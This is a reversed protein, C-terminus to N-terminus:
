KEGVFSAWRELWVRHQETRHTRLDESLVVLQPLLRIVEPGSGLQLVPLLPQGREVVEQILQFARVHLSHQGHKSSGLRFKQLNEATEKQKIFHIPIEHWPSNWTMSYSPVSFFHWQVKMFFIYSQIINSKRLQHYHPFLRQILSIQQGIYRYTQTNNSPMAPSTTIYTIFGRDKSWNIGLTFEWWKQWMRNILLSDNSEAWSWTCLHCFFTSVSLWHDNPVPTGLVGPRPTM